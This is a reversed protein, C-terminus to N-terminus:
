GLTVVGMEKETSSVCPAELARDTTVMIVFNSVSQQSGEVWFVYAQGWSTRSLFLCVFVFVFFM